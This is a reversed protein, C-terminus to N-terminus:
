GLLNSETQAHVKSVAIQVRSDTKKKKSIHPIHTHTQMHRNHFNFKVCYITFITRMGCGRGSIGVDGWWRFEHEKKRERILICIHM